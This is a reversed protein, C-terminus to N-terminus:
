QVKKHENADLYAQYELLQIKQECAILLLTIEKSVNVSELASVIIDIAGM